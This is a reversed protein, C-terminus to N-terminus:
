LPPGYPMLDSAIGALGLRAIVHRPNFGMREEVASLPVGEKLLEVAVLERREREEDETAWLLPRDLPHVRRGKAKALKRGGKGACEPGCYCANTRRTTAPAFVTGCERCPRPGAVAVTTGKLCSKSKGGM